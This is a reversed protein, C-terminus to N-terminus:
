NAPRVKRRISKVWEIWSTICSWHCLWGVKKWASFYEELNTGVDNISSECGLLSEILM